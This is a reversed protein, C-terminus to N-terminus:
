DLQAQLDIAIRALDFAASRWWEALAAADSTDIAAHPISLWDIDIQALLDGFERIAWAHEFARVESMAAGCTTTSM